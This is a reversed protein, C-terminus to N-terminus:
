FSDNLYDYSIEDLTVFEYGKEKLEPIIRKLADVSAPITEHFLVVSQPLMTAMTHQYIVQSDQSQWDQSDVNWMVSSLEPILQIVRQGGSGFPIRYRTPTVGTAEAISDQADQIERIVEEDPLMALDPHGYSHNAIEHGREVVEKTIEPHADVFGGVHFFTAKVDFEDLLDLVRYTNEHPGDDFTLAVSKREDLATGAIYPGLVQHSMLNEVMEESLPHSRHVAVIDYLAEDLVEDLEKKVTQSGPQNKITALQGEVEDVQHKFQRVSEEDKIDITELTAIQQRVQDFSQAMQKARTFLESMKEVSEDRRTFQDTHDREEIDSVTVGARLPLDEAIEDSLILPGTVDYIESLHRIGDYKAKVINLQDQLTQKQRGKVQDVEEQARKIDDLSIGANLYVKQEDSYLHNIAERAQHAQSNIFPFFEPKVISLGIILFGLTAISILAIWYKRHSVQQQGTRPDFSDSPM